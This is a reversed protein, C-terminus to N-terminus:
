AKSKRKSKFFNTLLNTCEEKLIGDEYEVKHNLTDDSFIKETLNNENINARAGFYCKKIRANCIAGACMPCPELTVYIEADELRWDKIKKCAKNIALVEAHSTAIKTSNRKNYAKAIVKNDLVIVAGVPVEDLNYAKKAENLALRMFKEKM